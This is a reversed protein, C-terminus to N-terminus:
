AAQRPSSDASLLLAACVPCVALRLRVLCRDAPNAQCVRCIELQVLEEVVHVTRTSDSM